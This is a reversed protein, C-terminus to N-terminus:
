QERSWLDFRTRLDFYDEFGASANEGTPHTVEFWNLYDATRQDLDSLRAAARDALALRAPFTPAEKPSLLAALADRYLGIVPRWAFHANIELITLQAIKERVQQAFAPDGAVGPLDAWTVVRLPTKAKEDEPLIVTRQAALEGATRTWSYFHLLGDRGITQQFALWEAEVKEGVKWRVPDPGGLTRFWQDLEAARAPDTRYFLYLMGCFSEQWPRLIPDDSLASWGFITEVSPTTHLFLARRAVDRALTIRDDDALSQFAGEGIWLPIAPLGARPSLGVPAGMAVARRLLLADVMRRLWEEAPNHPGVFLTVQFDPRAGARLLFLLPERPLAALDQQEVRLVLRSPRAGPPVLQRAYREAIALITDNVIPDTSEAVIAGSEGATQFLRPAEPAALALAAALLLGGSKM